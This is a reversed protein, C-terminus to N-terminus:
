TLGPSNYDPVPVVRTQDHQKLYGRRMTNSPHFNGGDFENALIEILPEAFGHEGAFQDAALEQKECIWKFMFPAFILFFLRWETHHKECHAMEHHLVAQQQRETLKQFRVGLMIRKIPGFSFSRAIENRSTNVIKIM